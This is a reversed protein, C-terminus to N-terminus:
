EHTFAANEVGLQSSHGPPPPLDLPSKAGGHDTTEGGVLRQFSGNVMVHRVLCVSSLAWGM